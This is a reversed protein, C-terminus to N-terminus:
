QTPGQANGSKATETKVEKPKQETKDTLLPCNRKFHPGGCRYCGQRTDKTPGTKPTLQQILQHQSQVLQQMVKTLKGVSDEEKDAELVSISSKSNDLQLLEEAMKVTEAMTTQPRALLHQQLAKHNIARGFVKLSTETVFAADQNPYAINVLKSIETGLEIVSQRSTKKISSLKDRAQRPTIGFKTKLSEVVETVTQGRGCEHATGELSGRLHLIKEHEAWGNAQSFDNFQTIFLVVDTEGNYKPPKFHTRPTHAQLKLFQELLTEMRPQDTQTNRQGPTSTTVTSGLQDELNSLEQARAARRCARSMIVQLLFFSTYGVAAM